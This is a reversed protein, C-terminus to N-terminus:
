CCVTTDFPQDEVNGDGNVDAAAAAAEEEEEEEERIEEKAVVTEKFEETRKKM